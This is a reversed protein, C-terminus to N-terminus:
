LGVGVKQMLHAKKEEGRKRERGEIYKILEREVKIRKEGVREWVYKIECWDCCWGVEGEREM